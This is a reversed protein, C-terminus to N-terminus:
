AVSVFGIKVDIEPAYHVLPQRRQPFGPRKRRSRYHITGDESAVRM